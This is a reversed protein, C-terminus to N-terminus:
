GSLFAAALILVLVDNIEKAAGLVDGTVGRLKQRSYEGMLLTLIFILMYILLAYVGMALLTIVLTIVSAMALERNGTHEVFAKGTGGEERPYSHLRALLVMSWLSLVPMSVIVGGKHGLPLSSLGAFKMIFLLAIGAAAFAGVRSDKMIRLTEARGKRSGFGDVVDCFGDIHLGGTLIVLAALILADVVAGPFILSLLWYLVLLILGQVLGVVPFYVTSRALDREELRGPASVPLITLFQFALRLHYSLPRGDEDPTLEDDAKM